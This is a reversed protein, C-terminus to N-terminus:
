RLAIPKRLIESMIIGTRADSIGLSLASIEEESEWFNDEFNVAPVKEVKEEVPKKFEEEPIEKVEDEVFEPQLYDESEQTEEEKVLNLEKLFGRVADQDAEYVPEEDEQKKEFDLEPFSDAPQPLNEKRQPSYSTRSQTNKMESFKKAIKIVWVGFFIVFFLIKIISGM